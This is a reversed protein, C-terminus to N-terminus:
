LHAEGVGTQQRPRHQSGPGVAPLEAHVLAHLLRRQGSQGLQGAGPDLPGQDACLHPLRGDGLRANGPGRGGLRRPPVQAQLVQPHPQAHRVPDAERDMGGIRTTLWGHCSLSTSLGVKKQIDLGVFLYHFEAQYGGPATIGVKTTAPPLAGKVGTMRVENKGVQEFRIGEISATVDSNYYLPGQIEYVLQSTITGVSMEGGTGNEEKSFVADGTSEIAAVPCGLDECGDFLDKFGSYYGGTAYTSCEILHGAILSGALADLDSPKWNHWWAAAGVAPSADAVRGCIIIDAGARLAEAIGM